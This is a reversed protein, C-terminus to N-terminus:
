ESKPAEPAPAAEKPAGGEPAAAADEDGGGKKKKGGAAAAAPKERKIFKKKPKPFEFTAGKLNNAAGGAKTIKEHAAKSYWGASVTLKRTFEGNGLIKVPLKFDPILGKERLAAADITAGNDFKELDVLNVIYFRREFNENSFGRKPFRKYIETQGGEYGRRIYTGVRAGSGKNGRGSTKGRGSSEGRGKRQTRKNRTAGSTIELLTM